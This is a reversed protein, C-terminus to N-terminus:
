YYGGLFDWSTPYYKEQKPYRFSPSIASLSKLVFVYIHHISGILDPTLELVSKDDIENSLYQLGPFTVTVYKDTFEIISYGLYTVVGTNRLENVEFVPPKISWSEYRSWTNLVYCLSNLM